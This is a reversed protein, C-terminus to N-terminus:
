SVNEKDHYLHKHGKYNEVIYDGNGRHELYSSRIPVKGHGGPIDLVYTPLALGSLRDTLTKMLRQGEEISIRFHATGPALDPHHLYYPKVRNAILTRFLDELTAANNNVGKLLVSQSLLVANTKSLKAFGEKVANNIEQAHNVHMVLYLAKPCTNIIELFEADIRTPKVLPTRTHIRIIDLQKLAALKELLAKLRRNSLTLPDGGSLIVERIQPASQIYDLAADIEEPALVGQGQGVMEKRFCFRCYVDCTDTIKLLARDPYRHVLGKVPSLANDGIPDPNEQPAIIQEEMSPLYQRAVPDSLDESIMTDYVQDTVPLHQSPKKIKSHVSM